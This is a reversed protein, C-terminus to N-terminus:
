MDTKGTKKKKLKVPTEVSIFHITPKNDDSYTGLKFLSEKKRNIVENSEKSANNYFTDLKWSSKKNNGEKDTENPFLLFNSISSIQSPKTRKEPILLNKRSNNILKLNDDVEIIHQDNTTNHMIIANDEKKFNRKNNLQHEQSNNSNTIYNQNIIVKKNSFGEPLIKDKQTELNVNLENQRRKM